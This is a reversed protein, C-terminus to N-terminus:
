YVQVAPVLDFNSLGSTSSGESVEEEAYNAFVGAVPHINKHTLFTTSGRQIKGIGKNRSYQSM